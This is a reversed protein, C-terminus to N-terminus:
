THEFERLEPGKEPGLSTLALIQAVSIRRHAGVWASPDPRARSRSTRPSAKRKQKGPATAYTSPPQSDSQGPSLSLPSIVIRAPSRPRDVFM